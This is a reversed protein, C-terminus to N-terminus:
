KHYRPGKWGEADVPCGAAWTPCERVLQVFQEVSGEGLPAESIVEDHVSLVPTYVSAECRLIADAMLDRAVAQTINEVLMGGYTVQRRWQRTYPDMGKYTLSPKMDGWPTARPRVEPFPYALRRGSPLECFLFDGDVYWKVKHSKILRGTEVAECAAQEQTYWMNKVRYFKTRYADVVDVSFQETITVGYMLATDVFKSAGMQYGCGLVAAKGLQREDKDAKTIPRNYISSAMECYIDAGSRFLDLAAEDGALWLLVRAEISAFDAVFLEKGPGAVIAGRLGHSLPEMVGKYTHVIYPRDETKLDRWLVDM